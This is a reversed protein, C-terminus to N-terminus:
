FITPENKKQLRCRVITVLRHVLLICNAVARRAQFWSSFVQLREVDSMPVSCAAASFTTAKRMESQLLDCVEKSSIGDSSNNLREELSKWLFEPENLWRSKCVM